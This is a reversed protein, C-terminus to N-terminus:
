PFLNLLKEPCLHFCVKITVFNVNNFDQRLDRKISSAILSIFRKCANNSKYKEGALNFSVYVKM